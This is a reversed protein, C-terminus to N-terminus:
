AGVLAADAPLRESGADEEDSLLVLKEVGVKLARALKGLTTVTIETLDGRELRSIYSQDQGIKEGLQQQSLRLKLRQMRLQERNLM